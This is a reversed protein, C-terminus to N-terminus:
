YMHLSYMSMLGPPSAYQVFGATPDEGTFYDFKDFFDTGSYTDKIAYSLKSYAPYRNMRTGVVAGVIIAVLIVVIGVGAAIKTKMGWNKPNFNSGGGGRSQGYPM